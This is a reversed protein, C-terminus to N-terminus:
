IIYAVKIIHNSLLCVFRNTGEGIRRYDKRESFETTFLKDYAITKEVISMSKNAYINYIKKMFDKTFNEKILSHVNVTKEKFTKSIERM